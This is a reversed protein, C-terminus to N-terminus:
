YDHILVGRHIRERTKYESGTVDLSNAISSTRKLRIFTPSAVPVFDYCPMRLPLQPHIVEKRPLFITSRNENKLFLAERLKKNKFLFLPLPAFQRRIASSNYFKQCVFLGMYPAKKNQTTNLILLKPYRSSFTWLSISSKINM